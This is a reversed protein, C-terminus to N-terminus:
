MGSASTGPVEDHPAVQQAVSCRFTGAGLRERCMNYVIIRVFDIPVKWLIAPHAALYVNSNRQRACPARSHANVTLSTM